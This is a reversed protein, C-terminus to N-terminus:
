CRNNFLIYASLGDTTSLVKVSYQEKGPSAAMLPEPTIFASACVTEPASSVGVGEDVPEGGAGVCFEGGRGGSTGIDAVGVWDGVSSVAGVCAAAVGAGDGMDRVAGVCASVCVGIDVCVDIGACIGNGIGGDSSKGSSGTSLFAPGVDLATAGISSM